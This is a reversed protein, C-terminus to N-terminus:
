QSSAHQADRTMNKFKIQASILGVFDKEVLSSVDILVM